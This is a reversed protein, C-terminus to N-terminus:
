NLYSSGVDDVVYEDRHYGSVCDQAILANLRRVYEENRPDSHLILVIVFALRCRPCNGQRSESAKRSEPSDFLARVKELAVLEHFAIARIGM